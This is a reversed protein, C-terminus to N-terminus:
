LDELDTADFGQLDDVDEEQDDVNEPDVTEDGGGYLRYAILAVALLAVLMIITTTDVAPLLGGGSIGRQPGGQPTTSSTGRSTEEGRGSEDPEAGQNERQRHLEDETPMDTEQPDTQDEHQDDGRSGASGGGEDGESPGGKPTTEHHDDEGTEDPSGGGESPITEPQDTEDVLESGTELAGKVAGWSPHDPSGNVHGRLQDVAKAEYDCGESPCTYGTM